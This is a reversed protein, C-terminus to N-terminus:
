RFMLKGLCLGLWVFTLGLVIHLAVNALAALPLQSRVLTLTEYGFSSFTTYSGLFGVFVFLRLNHSFVARSEGWQALFGILLCGSLNVLLTGLPFVACLGSKAALTNGLYRCIAGLFGGIGVFLANIIM